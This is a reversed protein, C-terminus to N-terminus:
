KKFKYLGYQLVISWSIDGIVSEPFPNIERYALIIGLITLMSSVAIMKMGFININKRELFIVSLMLFFTNILLYGEYIYEENFIISYGYDKVINIRSNHGGIIAIYIFMLVIMIGFIYDVKVRNNRNFIYFATCAAVPIFILNLFFFPKLLFLYKIDKSFFLIFLAVYRIYLGGFIFICLIKIKKPAYELSLKLGAFLIVVMSILLVFYVYFVLM